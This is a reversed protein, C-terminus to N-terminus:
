KETENSSGRKLPAAASLPNAKRQFKGRPGSRLPAQLDAVIELAVLAVHVHGFFRAGLFSLQLHPPAFPFPLAAATLLFILMAIWTCLWFFMSAASVSSPTISSVLGFDRRDVPATASVGATGSQTQRLM